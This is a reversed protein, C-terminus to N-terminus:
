WVKGQLRGLPVTDFATQFDLYIADVNHSVDILELLNAVCSRKPLFGHQSLNLLGNDLLHYLVADKVISEM